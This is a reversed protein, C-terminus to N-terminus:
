FSEIDRNEVRSQRIEEIIEDSSRNDEWAGFLTSIDFQPVPSVEISDTLKIIFKKKTQNDFRALFAFYKDLIKNSLTLKGM